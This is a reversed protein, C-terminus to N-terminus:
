EIKGLAKVGGPIMELLKEISGLKRVQRLQDRFDELRWIREGGHEIRERVLRAIQRPGPSTM